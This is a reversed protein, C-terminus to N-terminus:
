CVEFEHLLKYIYMTPNTSITQRHLIMVPITLLWSLPVPEDPPSWIQVDTAHTHTYVHIYACM